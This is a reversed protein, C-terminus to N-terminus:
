AKRQKKIIGVNQAKSDSDNIWIDHQLTFRCNPRLNIQIVIRNILSM